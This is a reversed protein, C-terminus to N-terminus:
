LIIGFTGVPIPIVSVRMEVAKKSRQCSGPIKNNDNVGKSNKVDTM